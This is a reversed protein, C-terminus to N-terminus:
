RVLGLSDMIQIFFKGIQCYTSIQYFINTKVQFYLAFIYKFHFISTLPMVGLRTGNVEAVNQFADREILVRYLVTCYGARYGTCYQLM